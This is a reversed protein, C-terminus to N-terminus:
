FDYEDVNDTTVDIWAAGYIVKGDIEVSEYGPLGLDMGDTPEEGQLLMLAIQNMAYGALAPDWFSIMDIAGTEILDRSISPVSTGVVAIQDQLGAEEIAQGAGVVDVASSGQIGRLNPFATLLEQTGEYATQTDDTTEIKDGVWEMNPYNERQHEIAADVWENHSTSGLSGVMVAYEGEEGMREALADMLHIGYADNRFAEIDYSVNQIESAEHAVVIIGAEQARALVAEVAEPEFPVVNIADVGQAILDELVAVQQAADAQAPGQQFTTVGHDEGFEIVGEEMRDFWAVGILKVVTALTYDEGDGPAAAPSDEATGCASLVLVVTLMAAILGPIRHTRM